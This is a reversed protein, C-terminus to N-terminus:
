YFFFVWSHMNYQIEALLVKIPAAHIHKSFTKSDTQQYVTVASSGDTPCQSPHGLLLVCRCSASLYFKVSVSDNAVNRPAHMNLKEGLSPHSSSGHWHICKLPTALCIKLSQCSGPKSNSGAEPRQALSFMDQCWLHPRPILRRMQSAAPFHTHVEWFTLGNRGTEPSELHCRRYPCMPLNCHWWRGWGGMWTGYGLLDAPM